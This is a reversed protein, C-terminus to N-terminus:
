TTRLGPLKAQATVYKDRLRSCWATGGAGTSSQVSYTTDAHVDRVMRIASPIELCGRTVICSTAASLPQLSQQRPEKKKNSM